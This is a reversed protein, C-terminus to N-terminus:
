GRSGEPRAEFGEDRVATLIREGHEAGDTALVLRVATERVHLDVGERIHAVDIV